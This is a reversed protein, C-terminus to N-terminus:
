VLEIGHIPMLAAIAVAPCAEGRGAGGRRTADANEDSLWLLRRRRRRQQLQQLARGSGQFSKHSIAFRMPSTSSASTSEPTQPQLRVGLLHLALVFLQCKISAYSTCEFTALPLHCAALPHCCSSACCLNSL